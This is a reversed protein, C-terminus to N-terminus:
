RPGGANQERFNAQRALLFLAGPRAPRAGSFSFLAAPKILGPLRGWEKFLM